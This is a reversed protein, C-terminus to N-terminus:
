FTIALNNVQLELELLVDKSRKNSLFNTISIAQAPSLAQWRSLLSQLQNQQYRTFHWQEIFEDYAAPRAQQQKLETSLADLQQILRDITPLQQELLALVQKENIANAPQERNDSIIKLSQILEATSFRSATAYFASAEMDFCHQEDYQECAQDLTLLNERQCDLDFVWPPYWSLGSSQETIKKAVVASGIAATAHGAIGLNLWAEDQQEGARAYLYGCAAACAVKGLGAVILRMPKNEYLRFGAPTSIGKLKYHNILPKAECQLATVINIM